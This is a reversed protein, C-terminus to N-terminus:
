ILTGAMRWLHLTLYSGSNTATATVIKRLLSTVRLVFFSQNLVIAHIYTYVYHINLSSKGSFDEGLEFGTEYYSPVKLQALVKEPSDDFDEILFRSRPWM